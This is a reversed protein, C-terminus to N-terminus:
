SRTGAYFSVFVDELQPEAFVFREV